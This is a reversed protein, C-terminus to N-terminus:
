KDKRFLGPGANEKQFADPFQKIFDETSLDAAAGKKIPTDIQM